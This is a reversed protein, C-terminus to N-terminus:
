SKTSRNSNRSSSRSNPGGNMQSFKARVDDVPMDRVKAIMEETSKIQRELMMLTMRDLPQVLKWGNQNRGFKQVNKLLDNNKELVRKHESMKELRAPDLKMKKLYANTAQDRKANMMDTLTEGGVVSDKNIQTLKQQNKKKQVTFTNSQIDDSNGLSKRTNGEINDFFSDGLDDKQIEKYNIILNIKGNPTNNITTLPYTHNVNKGANSKLTIVKIKLTSLPIYPDNPTRRFVGVLITDIFPNSVNFKFTQDYKILPSYPLAKSEESIFKDSLQFMCFIPSDPPMDRYNMEGINSLTITVVAM